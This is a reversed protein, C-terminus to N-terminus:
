EGRARRADEDTLVLHPGVRAAGAQFEVDVPEGDGGAADDAEMQEMAARLGVEFGQKAANAFVTAIQSGLDHLTEDSVHLRLEAHVEGVHLVPTPQQPQEDSSKEDAPEPRGFSRMTTM